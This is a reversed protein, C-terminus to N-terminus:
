LWLLVCLALILIDVLLCRQKPIAAIAMYISVPLILYTLALPLTVNGLWLFVLMSFVLLHNNTFAQRIIILKNDLFRKDRIILLIITLIFFALTAYDIIRLHSFQKAPEFITLDRWSQVFVPLTGAIYSIAFAYIYPILLGSFLIINDKISTVNNISIMLILFLIIGFASIDLLTALAITLGFTFIRNKLNASSDNPTDMLLILAIFFCTLLSPTFTHLFKGCNLLLLFFIGPMYTRSECFHNNDFHKIVGFTMTLVMAFVFIRVLTNHNTWWSALYQFMLMSGEQPLMSMQSFILWGSWGTLIVLFFLQINLNKNLLHFM